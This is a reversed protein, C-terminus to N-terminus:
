SFRPNPPLSAELMVTEAIGLENYAAQLGKNNLLAVRVAAQASLPSKLLRQVRASTVAVEGDNSVKVADQRLAPAVMGNVADMGGDPSFSACGALLVAFLVSAFRSRRGCHVQSAAKMFRARLSPRGCVRKNQALVGCLGSRNRLM